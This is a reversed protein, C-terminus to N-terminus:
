KMEKCIISTAINWLNHHRSLYLGLSRFYVSKSSIKLVRSYMTQPQSQCIKPVIWATALAPFGPSINKTLYAVCSKVAKGDALNWSIHVCCRSRHQSSCKRLLIKFIKCYPATKGFFRLFKAFFKLSQLVGWCNYISSCENGFYGEVPHRTEMKISRERERESYAIARGDRETQRRDTVSTCGVWATSIKWLIEVANPVKAM